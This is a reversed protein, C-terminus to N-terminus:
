RLARDLVEQAVERLPRSANRAQVRLRQLAAREDLGGAAMLYGKAQEIVVRADLAHQLQEVRDAAAERHGAAVIATGAMAGVAAVAEAEDENWTGPRTRYVNMAGLTDRGIQVPVGIAALLDVELCRKRYAPWRRDERLDAVQVVTSTVFAEHCAGQQALAQELEIYEVREDTAAAFRLDGGRDPLMLGAGHAGVAETVRVLLEDLLADRDLRGAAMAEAFAHIAVTLPRM